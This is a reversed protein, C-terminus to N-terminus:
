TRWYKPSSYLSLPDSDQDTAKVEYLYTQGLAITSYQYADLSDCCAYSERQRTV